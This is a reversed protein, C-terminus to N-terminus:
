AILEFKGRRNALPRSTRPEGRKQANKVRPDNHDYSNKSQNKGLNANAAKILSSLM